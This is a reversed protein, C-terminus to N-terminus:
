HRFIPRRIRKGALNDQYGHMARCRGRRRERKQWGPRPQPRGNDCLPLAAHFPRCLRFVPHRAIGTRPSRQSKVSALVPQYQRFCSPGSRTRTFLATCAAAARKSDILSKSIREPDILAPRIEQALNAARRIAARFLRAANNKMVWGPGSGDWNWDSYAVFRRPFGPASMTLQSCGSLIGAVPIARPRHPGLHEQIAKFVARLFGRGGTCGTRPRPRPFNARTIV